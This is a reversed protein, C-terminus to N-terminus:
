RRVINVVRFRSGMFSAGATMGGGVDSVSMPAAVTGGGGFAVGGFGGPMSAQPGRCHMGDWWNPPACAAAGGTAVPKYEPPAQGSPKEAPPPPPPTTQQIQQTSSTVGTAVPAYEPSIGAQKMWELHRRLAEEQIQKPYMQGEYQTGYGPIEPQAPSFFGEPLQSSAYTVASTGESTGTQGQPAMSTTAPTAVDKRARAGQPKFPNTGGTATPGIHTGPPETGAPGFYENTYPNVLLNPRLMDTYTRTLGCDAEVAQMLELRSEGNKAANDLTNNFAQMAVDQADKGYGKDIADKFTKAHQCLDGYSPSSAGKTAGLRRGLNVVPYRM